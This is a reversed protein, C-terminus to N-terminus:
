RPTSPSFRLARLAFNALHAAEGKGPTTRALLHAEMVGVTARYIVDADRRPEASVMAGAEVGGEIVAVLLGVLAAESRAHEAPFAERLRPLGVLFPRTRAAAEPDAAQALMGDIWARLRAAPTRAKGMLHNLYDALRRRGDDLLVLLLDDKSQFHRYFAQTSLGSEVLIDRVRPDVTGERSVVRYTAEVLQEVEQTAAAVKTSLSRAVARDVLSSRPGTGIPATGAV